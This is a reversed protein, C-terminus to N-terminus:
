WLMCTDILNHVVVNKRWWFLCVCVCGREHLEPRDHTSTNEPKHLEADHFKSQQIEPTQFEPNNIKSNHITRSHVQPFASMRSELNRFKATQLSHTQKDPMGPCMARIRVAYVTIAVVLTEEVEVHHARCQTLM